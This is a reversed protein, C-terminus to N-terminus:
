IKVFEDVYYAGATRGPACGDNNGAFVQRKQGTTACHLWLPSLSRCAPNEDYAGIRLTDGVFAKFRIPQLSSAQKDRDRFLTYVQGGDVYHDIVLDDDVVIRDVPNPGGSLIWSTCAVPQTAACAGLTAGPFKQQWGKKKVTRTQNQFCITVKKGKKGEAQAQGQPRAQNGGRADSKNKGRALSEGGAGVLGASLAAGGLIRFVSRRTAVEGLERTIGDFAVAKMVQEKKTSTAEWLVSRM